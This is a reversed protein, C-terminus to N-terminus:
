RIVVAVVISVFGGLAVLLSASDARSRRRASSTTLAAPVRPRKRFSGFYGEAFATLLFDAMETHVTAFQTIFPSTSFMRPSTSTIALTSVEGDRAREVVAFPTALAARNDLFVSLAASGSIAALGVFALWPSSDPRVANIAALVAFLTIGWGKVTDLWLLRADAIRIRQLFGQYLVHNRGEIMLISPSRTTVDNTTGM